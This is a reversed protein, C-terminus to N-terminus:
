GRGQRGQWGQWGQLGVLFHKLSIGHGHCQASVEHLAVGTALVERPAEEDEALKGSREAVRFDRFVHVVGKADNVEKVTSETSRLTRACVYLILKGTLLGAVSCRRLAASGCRQVAAVSCCPAAERVSQM